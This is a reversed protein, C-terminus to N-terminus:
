KFEKKAREVSYYINLRYTQKKGDFLLIARGWRMKMDPAVNEDTYEEIFDDLYGWHYMTLIAAGVRINDNKIEVSNEAGNYNFGNGNLFMHYNDLNADIACGIVENRERVTLEKAM